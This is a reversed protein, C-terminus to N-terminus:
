HLDSDSQLPRRTSHLMLEILKQRSPSLEQLGERCRYWTVYTVGAVRAASVPGGLRRELEVFDDRTIKRNRQTIHKM